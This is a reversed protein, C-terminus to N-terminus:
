RAINRREEDQLRQIRAVLEANSKETSLDNVLLGIIAADRSLPSFSLKAPLVTGDMKRLHVEQEASHINVSKLVDEIGAADEAHILDRLRLGVLAESSIGLLVALSDNCYIIEGNSNLMAAGQQMRQVLTSYPLDANQLTYVTHGDREEVVFADVCGTRIAEIIQAGDELIIEAPLVAKNGM